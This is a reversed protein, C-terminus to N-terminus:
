KESRSYKKSWLLQNYKSALKTLEAELLENLRLSNGKATRRLFAIQNDIHYVDDTIVKVDISRSKATVDLKSYSCGARCAKYLRVRERNASSFPREQNASCEDIPIEGKIPCTVTRAMYKGEVKVKLDEISGPYVGRLAQSLKSSSVGLEKAVKNQSKGPKDIERQLVTLWTENNM